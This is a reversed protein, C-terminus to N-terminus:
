PAAADDIEMLTKRAKYANNLRQKALSHEANYFIAKEWYEIARDINSPFVRVGDSYYQEALQEKTDRIYGDLQMNGPAAYKEAIKFHDLAQVLDEKDQYFFALKLHREVLTEGQIIGDPKYDSTHELVGDDIDLTDADVLRMDSSQKTNKLYYHGIAKQQATTHKSSQSVTQQLEQLKLTQIKRRRQEELSRLIDLDERLTPDMSLAALLDHRAQAYRGKAYNQRASKVLDFVRADIMLGLKRIEREAVVNGPELLRVIEWERLAAAFDGRNEAHLAKATRKDVVRETTSRPTLEACGQMAFILLM